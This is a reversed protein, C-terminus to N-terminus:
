DFYRMFIMVIGLSILTLCVFGGAVIAFLQWPIQDSTSADRVPIVGAGENLANHRDIIRMRADVKVGQAVDSQGGSVSRLAIFSPYHHECWQEIKGCTISIKVFYPDSPVAKRHLLRAYDRCMYAVDRPNTSKMIIGVAQAKRIKVNKDFVAPNM